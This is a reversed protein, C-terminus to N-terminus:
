EDEMNLASLRYQVTVILNKYTADETGESDYTRSGVNISGVPLQLWVNDFDFYDLYNTDEANGIHGVVSRSGKTTNITITEGTVMTKNIKINEGTGLNMIKPNNVTSKAELTIICGSEVNGNNTISTISSLKRTSMVVGTSPLIWPFKFMGEDESLKKGYLKISTFLPYPCYIQILFKCVVSNNEARNNSFSVNSSPRGTLRWNGVDIEVDNLPNIITSLRKQKSEMEEKTGIIWGSISIDRTGVVSNTLSKGIQQSYQFTNHTISINGWDICGEYLLYDADGMNMICTINLSTNTIMLEEVM